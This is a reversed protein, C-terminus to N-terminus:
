ITARSAGILEALHEAANRTEFLGQAELAGVLAVKDSRKLATIALRNAKLWDHLALNIQERWDKALLVDPRPKQPATFAALLMQAQHLQSIDLNICLLGAPSGNMDPLVATVSKLKQ